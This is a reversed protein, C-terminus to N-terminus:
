HVYIQMTVNLSTLVFNFLSIKEGFIVGARIYLVPPLVVILFNHPFVARKLIRRTIGYLTM